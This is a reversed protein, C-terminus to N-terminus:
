SIVFRQYLASDIYCGEIYRVRSIALRNVESKVTSVSKQLTCFAREQQNTFIETLTKLKYIIVFDGTTNGTKYASDNSYFPSFKKAM